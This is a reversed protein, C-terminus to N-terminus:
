AGCHLFMATDGTQWEDKDNNNHLGKSKTNAYVKPPTHTVRPLM